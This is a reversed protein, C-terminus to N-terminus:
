WASTTFTDAGAPHYNVIYLAGAYGERQDLWIALVANDDHWTGVATKGAVINKCSLLSEISGAHQQDLHFDVQRRDPFGNIKSM